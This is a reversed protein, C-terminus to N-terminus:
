ITIINENKVWGNRIVSCEKIHIYSKPLIGEGDGDFKKVYFWEQFEGKVVLPEGLQISLVLPHGHRELSAKAICFIFVFDM